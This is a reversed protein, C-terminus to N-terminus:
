YAWVSLLSLKDRFTEFLFDGPYCAWCSLVTSMPYYAWKAGAMIRPIKSYTTNNLLM